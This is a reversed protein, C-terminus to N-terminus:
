FSFGILWDMFRHPPPPSPSLLSACRRRRRLRHLRSSSSSSRPPPPPPTLPKTIHQHAPRCLVVVRPDGCDGGDVDIGWEASEAHQSKGLGRRRERGRNDKEGREGEETM